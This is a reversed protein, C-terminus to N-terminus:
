QHLSSLIQRIGLRKKITRKMTAEVSPFQNLSFLHEIPTFLLFHELLSYEIIRKEIWNENSVFKRIQRKALLQTFFLANKM